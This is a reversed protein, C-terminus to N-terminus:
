KLANLIQEAKQYNYLSGAKIKELIEKAKEPKDMRLYLLAKFWYGKSADMLDSNILLDFTEEAENVRDLEMESIGQYLLLTARNIEGSGELQKFLPLAKDYAGEKYFQLAQTLTGNIAAGRHSLSPIETKDLYAHYLENSSRPSDFLFITTILLLIVAAAAYWPWQLTRKPLEKEKFRFKAQELIEKLEQTKQSRYLQAYEEMASQNFNETLDWDNENLNEILHKEFHYKEQFETDTTLRQQFANEEAEPLEGRLKKAILILDEEKM